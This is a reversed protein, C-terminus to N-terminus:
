YYTNLGSIDKIKFAHDAYSYYITMFDTGNNDRTREEGGITYSVTCEYEANIAAEIGNKTMSFSRLSIKKFEISNLKSSALSKSLSEYTEKLDSLDAGEYEFISKMEDFSKQEKAGNYLAELGKKTTELIQNKIDESLKSEDLRLTYSNYYRSIDMTDEVEFGLPLEVKIRHKKAFMTPIKYVDYQNDSSINDIYKKDVEIGEISLKSDKLVKIESDQVTKMSLIDSDHVRWDDFFLYRKGEQKVLDVRATEVTNSANEVYSIRISATLGDLSKDFRDITYDTININMDNNIDHELIKTLIDKNVFESEEIDMYQYYKDVDANVVAVFFDEAITKPSLQYDLVAYVSCLIVIAGLISGLLIKQKKSVNKLKTRLGENSINKLISTSKSTETCELKAGCNGCFQANKEAKTGCEGCFM